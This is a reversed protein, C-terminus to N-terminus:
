LGKVADELRKLAQELIKRPCAANVRQFGEGADGFMAGADLWLGAKKVVLEELQNNTLGLERFDLWALYTGEPKNMRIEPIHADIYEKM